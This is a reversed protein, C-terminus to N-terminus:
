SLHAYRTCMVDHQQGFSFDQRGYLISHHAIGLVSRFGPPLEDGPRLQYTVFPVGYKDRGCVACAAPKQWTTNTLYDHMCKMKVDGSVQEPWNDVSPELQNLEKLRKRKTPGPPSMPSTSRHIRVDVPKNSATRSRVMCVAKTNYSVDTLSKWIPEGFAAILHAHLDQMTFSSFSGDCIFPLCFHRARPTLYGLMGRLCWRFIDGIKSALTHKSRFLHCACERNTALCLQGVCQELVPLMCHSVCANQGSMSLNLWQTLTDKVAYLVCLLSHM